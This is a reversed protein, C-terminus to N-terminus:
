AANRSSIFSYLTLGGLEAFSSEKLAFLPCATGYHIIQTSTSIRIQERRNDLAVVEERYEDIQESRARGTAIAVVKGKLFVPSGSMGAPVPFNLELRGYVGTVHGKHVRLELGSGHVRHSPIGICVVDDGPLVTAESCSLPPTEDLNVRFIAVDDRELVCAQNIWAVQERGDRLVVAVLRMGPPIDEPSPLVHAATLADGHKTVFFGTGLYCAGNTSVTAESAAMLFIPFIYERADELIM